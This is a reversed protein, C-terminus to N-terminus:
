HVPLIGSWVETFDRRFRESTFRESFDAHAAAGMRAVSEGTLGALQKRLDSWRTPAFVLGNEEHKVIDSLGGANSAVVPRGHAFAEIAVLGFPEPNDSPVVMVDSAAIHEAIDDVEGVLSVSNPNKLQQVMWPVEVGVGSPPPGGLITLHGLPEDTDWAQMLTAHGKWANWRGAILFRLHDGSGPPPPQESPTPTSNLIVRTRDQLHAPLAGKVADSIAIIDTCSRALASLVRSEPGSWFEQVHLVVRSVGMLRALPAMLLTASTACYVVEPRSKRLALAARCARALLGPLGRPKMYARRMIPLGVIEHAWGANALHEDLTAGTSKVDSPLWVMVDGAHASPISGLVELLMRDAGYMENSSHVALIRPM